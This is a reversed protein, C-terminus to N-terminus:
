RRDLNMPAGLGVAVVGDELVDAIVANIADLVADQSQKPTAIEMTAGITGARDVVGALIKTGGLDVGIAREPQMARSGYRGPHGVLLLGIAAISAPPDFPPNRELTM